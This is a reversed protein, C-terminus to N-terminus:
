NTYETTVWFAPNDSVGTVSVPTFGFDKWITTNAPVTQDLWKQLAGETTPSGSVVPEDTPLVAWVYRTFDGVVSAGFTIEPTGSQLTGPGANVGPVKNWLTEGNITPFTANGVTSDTLLHEQEILAAGSFPVVEISNTPVTSATSNLALAANADAISLDSEANNEEQVATGTENAVVAADFSSAGIASLFFSRTGSSAQPLVPVVRETTAVGKRSVATVVSPFGGIVQVDGVTPGTTRQTFATDLYVHTLTGTSFNAIATDSGNVQEAVGVADIAQPFFTLNNPEGAQAWMTQSPLSSSRSFSIEERRITASGSLTNTDGSDSSVWTNDSPNNAASLANRGDGSGDPRQFTDGGRVPTLNDDVGGTNPNTANYSGVTAGFADPTFTTDTYKFGQTLAGYVDQVTNSGYGNILKGSADPFATFVGAHAVGVGAAAMVAVAAASIAAARKLSKKV